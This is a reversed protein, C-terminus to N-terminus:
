ALFLGRRLKICLERLGGLIKTQRNNVRWTSPFGLTLLLAPDGLPICSGLFIWSDLIKM